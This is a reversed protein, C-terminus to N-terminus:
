LAEPQCLNEANNAVRGCSKCIYRPNKVLPKLVDLDINCPCCALACMKNGHTDAAECM